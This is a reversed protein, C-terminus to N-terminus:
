FLWLITQKFTATSNTYPKFLVQLTFFFHLVQKKDLSKFIGMFCAMTLLMNHIKDIFAIATIDWLLNEM